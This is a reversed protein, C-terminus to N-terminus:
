LLDLLEEKQPVDNHHWKGKVVGDQLLLLGPNSRVMTKLVTADAFYYPVALQYEHRFNEFSAIDSATLIMSQVQEGSQRALANIAKINETDAKQVDYIIILLKNGTFTEQTFDGEDNWVSYDTIKAQAEPNLLVMEKYEYGEGSPYSEFEYEEGNKTMIYKYRLEESPHMAQEINTGIKYARFDIFPLHEIAYVALGVNVVLVVGVVAAKWMPQSSEGLHKRNIFLILILVLLIVDKTFSEWPTLKIADGFCGCDTVKNFYASYFTLFTFFVIMLLLAWTTLKPKWNVLLAVGLVVELVCLIVSLTLSYPVLEHFFPAFDDAFVEFYEQLKISTGVPDNIKILGSFIFLGGVLFAIIRNILKM